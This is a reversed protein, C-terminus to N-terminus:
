KKGVAKALDRANRVAHGGIDNNYYMYVTRGQKLWQRVRQADERIQEPAYNGGYRGTAGHRRLYIFNAGNPEQAAGKGTMDHLCIAAKMRDLCSYVDDSLWSDERFEVAYRWGAPAVDHLDGFFAKLKDLNKRQNPPLQILLPGRRAAPLPEFVEFFSRLYRRSGLLKKYHTIGRWLKVAFAFGAPTQGPWAAVTTAKPIRYFSTNIEVTNFRNSLYALWDASRIGKPYFVERWHKYNWGSTGIYSKAVLM